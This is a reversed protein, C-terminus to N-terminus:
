RFTHYRQSFMRRLFEEKGTGLVLVDIQISSVDDFLITQSPEM